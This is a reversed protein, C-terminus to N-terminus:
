GEGLISNTLCHSPCSTINVDPPYLFEFSDIKFDDTSLSEIGTYNLCDDYSLTFPQTQNDAQKNICVTSLSHEFTM